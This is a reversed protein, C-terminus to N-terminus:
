SGLGSLPFRQTRHHASGTLIAPERLRGIVRGRAPHDSPLPGLRWPTRLHWAVQGTTIRAAAVKGIVIAKAPGAGAAAWGVWGALVQDGVAPGMDTARVPCM